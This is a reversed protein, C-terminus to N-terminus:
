CGGGQDEHETWGLQDQWVEQCCRKKNCTTQCGQRHCRVSQLFTAKTTSSNLLLNATQQKETLCSFFNRQSPKPWLGAPKEGVVPAGATM